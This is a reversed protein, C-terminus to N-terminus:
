FSSCVFYASFPAVEAVKGNQDVFVGAGGGIPKFYKSYDFGDDPFGYEGLEWDRRNYGYKRDEEESFRVNGNADVIIDHTGVASLDKKEEPKPPPAFDSYMLHFKVVNKRPFRKPQKDNSFVFM